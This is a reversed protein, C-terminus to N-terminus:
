EGNEEDKGLVKAIAARVAAVAAATQARVALPSHRTM